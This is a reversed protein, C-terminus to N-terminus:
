AAISFIFSVMATQTTALMGTSVTVEDRTIIEKPTQKKQIKKQTAAKARPAVAAAWSNATTWAAVATPHFENPDVHAVRRSRPMMVARPPRTLDPKVAAMGAVPIVGEVM